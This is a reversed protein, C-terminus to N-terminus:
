YKKTHPTKTNVTKNKKNANVAAKTSFKAM